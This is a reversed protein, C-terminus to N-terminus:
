KGGKTQDAQKAQIVADDMKKIMADINGNYYFSYIKLGETVISDQETEILLRNGNDDLMQTKTLRKNPNLKLNVLVKWMLDEKSEKLTKYYDMVGYDYIHGESTKKIVITCFKYGISKMWQHRDCVINPM